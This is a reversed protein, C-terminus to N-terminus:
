IAGRPESDRRRLIVRSGGAVIFEPADNTAFLVAALRGMVALVSRFGYQQWRSPPPLPTAVYGYVDELNVYFLLDLKARTEASYKKAFRAVEAEVRDCIDAYTIDRVVAPQLLDKAEKAAIARELAAKFETHRRRGPDQIEKVEFAASRFHVDPPEDAASQVESEVFSVGLNGLFEVVVWREREPKNESGFYRVSEARAKRVYELYEEDSM